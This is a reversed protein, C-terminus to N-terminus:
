CVAMCRGLRDGLLILTPCLNLTCHRYDHLYSLQDSWQTTIRVADELFTVVILSRRIAPLYPKIPESYQDLLDEIKSTQARTQARLQELPSPDSTAEAKMSSNSYGGMGGFRNTQQSGLNYGATGRIQAM